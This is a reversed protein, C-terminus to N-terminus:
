VIGYRKWDEKEIRQRTEMDYGALIKLELKITFTDLAKFAEFPIKHEDFAWGSRCNKYHFIDSRHIVIDEFDAELKFVVYIAALKYPKQLLKLQFSFWDKNDKTWGVPSIYLCWNDHDFNSSYFHQGHHCQQMQKLRHQNVKWEFQYSSSIEIDKSWYSRGQYKMILDVIGLKQEPKIAISRMSPIFGFTACEREKDSLNNGVAYAVHIVDVYYGFTVSDLGSLDSHKVANTAWPFKSRWKYGLSDKSEVLIRTVKHEYKINSCFLIFYVYVYKVNAPLKSVSLILAVRGEHDPEYGNPALICEFEIDKMKFKPGHMIEECKCNLFRKMQKGPHITWYKMDDYFTLVLNIIPEPTEDFLSRVYGFTLLNRKLQDWVSSLAM